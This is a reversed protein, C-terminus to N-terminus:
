ILQPDYRPSACNAVLAVAGTRDGQCDNVSRMAKPKLNNSASIISPLM